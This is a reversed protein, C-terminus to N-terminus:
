CVWCVFHFLRSAPQWGYGKRELQHHTTANTRSRPVMDNCSCECTAVDCPGNGLLTSSTRTQPQNWPVRRLGVFLFDNLTKNRTRPIGHNIQFHKRRCRVEISALVRRITVSASRPNGQLKSAPQTSLCVNSSSM